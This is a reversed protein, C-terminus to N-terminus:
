WLRETLRDRSRSAWVWAVGRAVVLGRLGEADKAPACVCVGLRSGQSSFLELCGVGLRAGVLSRAARSGDGGGDDVDDPGDDPPVCACCSIGRSPACSGVGEETGGEPDLAEDALVAAVTIAGGELAMGDGSESLSGRQFAGVTRVVPEM